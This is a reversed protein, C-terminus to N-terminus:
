FRGSQRSIKNYITSGLKIFPLEIFLFTATSVIMLLFVRILPEFWNPSFLFISFENIPRHLLYISYCTNGLFLLITSSYNKIEDSQKWYVLFIFCLVVVIYLGNGKFLYLYIGFILILFLSWNYNGQLNIRSRVKFSLVGLLFYVGYNLIFHQDFEKAYPINSWPNCCFNIM